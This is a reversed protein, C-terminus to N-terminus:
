GVREYILISEHKTSRCCRRARRIDPIADSYRAVRRFGGAEEVAESVIAPTDVLRGTRRVEGVVLVCAGGVKLGVRAIKLTSTMLRQFRVPSMPGDAESTDEVGLFWLRLRNDRYYDLANMYPPSTIIADVEGERTAMTQADAFLCRARVGPPRPVFRRFARAVKAALRDEVSRYRYM